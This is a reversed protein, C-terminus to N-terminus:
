NAADAPANTDKKKMLEREEAELRRLITTAKDRGLPPAVASQLAPKYPDGLRSFAMASSMANRAAQREKALEAKLEEVEKSLIVITADRYAVAEDFRARSVPLKV